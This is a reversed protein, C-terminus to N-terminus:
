GHLYMLMITDAGTHETAQLIHVPEKVKKSERCHLDIVVGLVALLWDYKM